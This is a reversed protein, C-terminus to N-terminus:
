APTPPAARPNTFHLPNPALHLLDPAAFPAPFLDGPGRILKSPCRKPAHRLKQFAKAKFPCSKLRASFTLLILQPKLGQEAGSDSGAPTSFALLNLLVDPAALPHRSM